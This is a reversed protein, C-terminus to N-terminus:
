TPRRGAPCWSRRGISPTCLGSPVWWSPASSCGACCCNPACGPGRASSAVPPRPARCGRGNRRMRTVPYPWPACRPPLSRPCPANASAQCRPRIVAFVRTSSGREFSSVADLVAPDPVRNLALDAMATASCGSATRGLGTLLAYGRQARDGRSPALASPYANRAPAVLDPPDAPPPLAPAAGILVGALCFSQLSAAATPSGASPAGDQLLGQGLATAIWFAYAWRDAPQGLAELATGDVLVRQSTPCYAAPSPPAPPTGAPPRLSPCVDVIRRGSPLSEISPFPRSATAPDAKWAQRLQGSVEAIEASPPGAQAKIVSAHATGTGAATSAALLWMAPTLRPVDRLVRAISFTTTRHRPALM